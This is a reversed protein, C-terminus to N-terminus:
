GGGIRKVRPIWRPVAKCYDEYSAGFSKKLHPEEYFVVFLHFLLWVFFTAQLFISSELLVTEGVLILLVGVYM